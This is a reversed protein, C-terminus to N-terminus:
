KHPPTPPADIEHHARATRCFYHLYDRVEHLYETLRRADVSAIGYYSMRQLDYILRERATKPTSQEM